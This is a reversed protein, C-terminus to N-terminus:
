LDSERDMLGRSGRYFTVRKISADQKVLQQIFDILKRDRQCEPFCSKKYNINVMM